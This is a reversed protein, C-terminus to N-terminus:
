IKCNVFVSLCQNGAKGALCAIHCNVRIHEAESLMTEIVRTFLPCMKCKYQIEVDHLLLKGFTEM